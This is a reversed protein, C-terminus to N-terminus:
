SFKEIMYYSILFVIARIILSINYEIKRLNLLNIVYYSNLLCFLIFIFIYVKINSKKIVKIIKKKKKKKNIKNIKDTNINEDYILYDLNSEIHENNINNLKINENNINNLKIDSIKTFMQNVFNFDEFNNM